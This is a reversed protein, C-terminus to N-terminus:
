SMFSTPLYHLSTTYLESPPWARASILTSVPVPWCHWHRAPLDQAFVYEERQTSNSLIMFIKVSKRRICYGSFWLIGDVARKQAKAAKLNRTRYVTPLVRQVSTWATGYGRGVYLVVCSSFLRVYAHRSHSEFGRDWRELSRLCNM